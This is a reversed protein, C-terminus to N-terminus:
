VSTGLQTQPLIGMSVPSLTPRLPWWFPFDVLIHTPTNWWTWSQSRMSWLGGPRETRSIERHFVATPQWQKSWRIKGVGPTSDSHRTFGSNAPLHKVVLAVSLPAQQFWPETHRPLLYLWLGGTTAKRGGSTLLPSVPKMELQALMSVLSREPFKPSGLLSSPWHLLLSLIEPSMLSYALDESLQRLENSSWVDLSLICLSHYNCNAFLILSAVPM